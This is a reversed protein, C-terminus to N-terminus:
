WIRALRSFKGTLFRLDAISKINKMRRLISAPKIEECFRYKYFDRILRKQVEIIEEPTFNNSGAASDVNSLKSFDSIEIGEKAMLSYLETGHFPTAISFYASDLNANRAFDLSDQIMEGTEGPFGIVFFGHTWIGIERAYRIVDKTRALPLPKHIIDRLIHENGSEIGFALQYCGSKKMKFLLDRDLTTVYVGNPTTWSIDLNREIILDCIRNM